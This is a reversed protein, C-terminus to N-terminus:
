KPVLFEALQVAVAQWVEEPVGLRRCPLSRALKESLQLFDRARERRRQGHEPAANALSLLM